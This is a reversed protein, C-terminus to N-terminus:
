AQGAEAIPLHALVRADLHNRLPENLIHQLASRCFAMTLLSRAQAKDIGRSRLYFLAREDLQGITAGHAAKVEDAYIELEPKTDIEASRSLLLNKNSLAADSGDAGEAVFIAGRFVGRSREDAVGRWVADSATDRAAHRVVLQTDVHQRGRLVFVGRTDFRAGAGALEGAVDHRVLAGGLELAHLTASAGNGVQVRTRRMLTTAAPADQLVIWQLQANDHVAIDTVLTGLQTATGAAAHHEVVSIGAGAGIDVVLRLHWSTDAQHGGLCVLHVPKGVTIGPAVRLV